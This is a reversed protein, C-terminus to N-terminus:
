RGARLAQAIYEAARAAIMAVTMNPHARVLSPMVSADAIWLAETGRVALRPSVVAAEDSGMRCTGSPHYVTQMIPILMEFLASDATGALAFRDDIWRALPARGAVEIAWRAATTMLAADRGDADSFLKFDILPELTAPALSVNGRAVADLVVAGITFAEIEPASLAQDRWEVPAFILELDPAGVDPRSQRFAVAEAVNSALPGARQFLYRALNRLSAASRYSVPKRCPFTLTAMPHDQLHSGVDRSDVLPAIGLANLADAPGIGSRLLLSPSGIAGAALVVGHRARLRRQSGALEVGTARHADLLLRSVTQDSLLRLNPRRLAPQLLADVVTSRRGDRHAIRSVAATEGRSSGGVLTAAAAAVFDATAAHINCNIEHPMEADLRALVPQVTDWDWGLAGAAQWRALDNPCPWQHIQANLSASGGLMRGRPVYIERGGISRQPVSTWGWDRRSAFLKTFGAPMAILPHGRAPGAEILLVNLQPNASLREALVCGATGAGIIILDPDGMWFGMYM